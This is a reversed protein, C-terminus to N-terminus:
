QLYHQLSCLPAYLEEFQHTKKKLYISLHPIVPHYPLEVKLDKLFKWVNKEYHKYWNVNGSATYSPEVKEM